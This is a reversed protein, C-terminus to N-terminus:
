CISCRRCIPRKTHVIFKVVGLEPRVIMSHTAITAKNKDLEDQIQQRTLNKTGRLM